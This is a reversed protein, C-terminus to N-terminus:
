KKVFFMLFYPSYKMSRALDGTLCWTFGGM